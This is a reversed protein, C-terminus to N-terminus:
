RNMDMPIPRHVTVGGAKAVVPWSKIRIATARSFGYGSRFRIGVIATDGSTLYNLAVTQWSPSKARSHFRPTGIQIAYNYGGLDVMLPCRRRLNRRLVDLEILSIPDDTTVCTKSAAAAPQLEATPFPRGFPRALVLSGYGAILGLTVAGAIIASIPRTIRGSLWGGAAGLVLATPAATLAAYHLFWSPTTLLLAVTVGLLLVGVRGERYQWAALGCLLFITGALVLTWTATPGFPTLGAIDHVRELWSGAMRPRGLQALLVLQWMQRPAALFFPLCITTAGAAYGATMALARRWGLTALVWAIMAFAPVVGWVKIATSVGLLAGAVIVLLLGTPASRRTKAGSQIEVADSRSALGTLIVAGLLCSTALPELLASHEVYVAPFFVAYTLGGVMAAAPGLRRLAVAVLVANASGIIMFGIRAAAFATPDGVLDALSAFPALALVIGPPHLLLFDRYPMLGHAFGSAATYYVGDDYNGRGFLGGGALVPALRLAFATGAVAVMAIIWTATGRDAGPSARSVTATTTEM